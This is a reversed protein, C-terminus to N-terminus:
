RCNSGSRAGVDKTSRVGIRGGLAEIIEKCITLGLGTGGFRRTISADVQSFPQFLKTLGEPDIGIGTDSIDAGFWLRGNETFERIELTVNRKKTFKM